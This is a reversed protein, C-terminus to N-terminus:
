HDSIPGPSGNSDASRNKGSLPLKKIDRERERSLFHGIWIHVRESDRAFSKYRTQRARVGDTRKKGFTLQLEGLNVHKCGNQGCIVANQLHFIVKMPTM